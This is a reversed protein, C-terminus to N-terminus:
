RRTSSPSASTGTWWRRWRPRTTRPTAPGPATGRHAAGRQDLGADRLPDGAKQPLAQVACARLLRLCGRPRRDLRRPVRARRLAGRGHRPDARPSHSPGRNATSLPVPSLTDTVCPEGPRSRRPERAHLLGNPFASPGAARCATARRDVSGDPPPDQILTRSLVAVLVGGLDRQRRAAPDLVDALRPSHVDPVKAGLIGGVTPDGDSVHIGTIENDGDNYSPGGAADFTASPDRGEALWRVARPAATGTATTTASTTAADRRHGRGREAIDYLWGSDLDNRQAHM